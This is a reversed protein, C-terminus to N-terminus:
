TIIKSGRLPKEIVTSKSGHKYICRGRSMSFTGQLIIFSCHLKNM